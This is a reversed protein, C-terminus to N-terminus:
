QKKYAGKEPEGEVWWGWAARLMLTRPSPGQNAEIKKKRDISMAKVIEDLIM